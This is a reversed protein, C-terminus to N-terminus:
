QCGDLPNHNTDLKINPRGSPDIRICRATIASNAPNWVVLVAGGGGAIRGDRQYSFSAAPGTIGVARVANQTRLAAGNTQVQWGSAWNSQGSVTPVIDVNANRKIAESRALILSGYLDFVTSRVRQDAVLDSLSPVAVVTLVMVIAISVMVEIITFGRTAPRMCSIKSKISLFAM